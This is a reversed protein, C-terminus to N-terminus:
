EDPVPQGVIGAIVYGGIRARIAERMVTSTCGAQRACTKFLEYYFAGSAQASEYSLDHCVRCLILRSRPPEYLKFARRDCRPCRFWRRSGGLNAPTEEIEIAQAYGYGQLRIWGGGGAVPSFSYRLTFGYKPWRYFGGRSDLMESRPATLILCSEAQRRTPIGNWRTSGFGGM